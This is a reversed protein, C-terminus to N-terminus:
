IKQWLEFRVQGAKKHKLLTWLPDELPEIDQSVGYERYLLGGSRTLPAIIVNITNIEHSDFPPDLFILDYSEGTTQIFQKADQHLVKIHEFALRKINHQLQRVTASNNEVCTVSQANRSAAEFALIGSGSYLDLVAMGTLNQGLWNFLTERVRDATPRLGPHDEVQIKRSRHSGGTIRIQGM